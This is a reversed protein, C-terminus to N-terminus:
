IIKAKTYIDNKKIFVKIFINLLYEILLKIQIM